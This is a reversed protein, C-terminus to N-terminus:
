QPRCNNTQLCHFLTIILNHKQTLTCVELLDSSDTDYLRTFDM